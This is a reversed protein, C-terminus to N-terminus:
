EENNTDEDGFVLKIKVEQDKARDAIVQMDIRRKALAEAAKMRDSLTAELGFQDRVEGRMCSTFFQMIEVNDAIYQNRLADLQAGMEKQIKHKALLKRGYSSPSTTKYGAKIVSAKLDGSEIYSSVFTIEQQSLKQETGALHGTPLPESGEKSRRAM